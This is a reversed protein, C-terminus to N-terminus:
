SNSKSLNKKWPIIQLNSIDAIAEPDINDRYGKSVSLIHDVQWANMNGNLRNDVLMLKDYNLLTHFPQKRTLTRVQRYYKKRNDLDLIYEEYTDYGAKTAAMKKTHEKTIVYNWSKKYIVTSCSNCVSGNKNAQKLSWLSGYKRVKGCRPCARKLLKKRNRAEVTVKVYHKKLWPISKGKKTQAMKETGCSVCLKSDRRLRNRNYKNTHFIDVKCKPCSRKWQKNM